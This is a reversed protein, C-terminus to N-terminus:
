KVYKQNMHKGFYISYSRSLKKKTGSSELVLLYFLVEFFAVWLFQPFPLGPWYCHNEKEYQNKGTVSITIPNLRSKLSRNEYLFSWIKTWTRVAIFLARDRMFEHDDAAQTKRDLLSTM